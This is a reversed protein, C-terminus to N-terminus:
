AGVVTSLDKLTAYKGSSIVKKIGLKKAQKVRAEQRLVARIEGGLGVEGFAALNRPIAIGKTASIVALCLGLDLAPEFVKLGGALSVYVDKEQLKLGLRKEM